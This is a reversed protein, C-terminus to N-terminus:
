LGLYQTIVHIARDYAHADVACECGMIVVKAREYDNWDGSGRRIGNDVLVREILQQSTPVGSPRKNKHTQTM